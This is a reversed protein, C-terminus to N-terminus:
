HQKNEAKKESGFLFLASSFFLETGLIGYFVQNLSRVGEM